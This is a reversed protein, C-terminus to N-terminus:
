RYLYQRRVPKLELIKKRERTEKARQNKAAKEAAKKTADDPDEGLANIIGKVKGEAEEASKRAKKIDAM